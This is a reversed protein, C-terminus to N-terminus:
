TADDQERNSTLMELHDLVEDAHGVPAYDDDTVGDLQSMAELATRVCGFYQILDGGSSYPPWDDPSVLAGCVIFAICSGLMKLIDPYYSLRRGPTDREDRIKHREADGAIVANLLLKMITKQDDIKLIDHPEFMTASQPQPALEALMAKFLPQLLEGTIFNSSEKRWEVMYESAFAEPDILREAELEEPDITPNFDTSTGTIVLARDGGKDGLFANYQDFFAGEPLWPTSALMLLGKTTLMGPAIARLIEEAPM